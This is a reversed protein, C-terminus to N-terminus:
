GLNIPQQSGLAPKGSNERQYRLRAEEREKADFYWLTIAYRTRHAPQVEHPNRRDSWFFLMRDFIPEIDAVQNAWGNPFIRLLGGDEKSDWNKNLYYISTICRGDKNPNDIHKVYHSGSGPYCAVMAKTRGQIIHNGLSGNNKIRKAHMIVSDVMAMLYGIAEAGRESGDVWTIQDGRITRTSQRWRNSVVEGERFVGSDYLDETTALIADAYDKGLFNDIVCIGFRDLDQIVYQCVKLMWEATNRRMELYHEFGTLNKTPNLSQQTSSPGLNIFSDPDYAKRKPERIPMSQDLYAGSFFNDIAFLLDTDPLNSFSEMETQNVNNQEREVGSEDCAIQQYMAPGAEPLSAGGKPFPIETVYSSKEQQSLTTVSPSLSLGPVSNVDYCQPKHIRWHLKQHEKSCYLVNRCRACRFLQHSNGCLVCGINYQM